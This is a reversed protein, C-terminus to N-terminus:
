KGHAARWADLRAKNATKIQELYAKAEPHASIFADRDAKMQQAFAARKAAQDKQFAVWSDPPQPTPTTQAFATTSLLILSLASGLIIKQM